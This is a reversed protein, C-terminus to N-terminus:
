FTSLNFFNIFYHLYLYNLISGYSFIIKFPHRSTMQDLDSSLAVDVLALQEPGRGM